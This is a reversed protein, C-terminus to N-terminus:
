LEPHEVLESRRVAAGLSRSFCRDAGENPEGPRTKQVHCAAFEVVGDTSYMRHVGATHPMSPEGLRTDPDRVAPRVVPPM